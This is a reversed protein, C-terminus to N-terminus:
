DGDVGGKNEEPESSEEPGYKEEWPIAIGEPDDFELDEETLDEDMDDEDEFVELDDEDLDDQQDSAQSSGEDKSSTDSGCTTCSEEDYEELNVNEFSKRLLLARLVEKKKSNIKYFTYNVLHNLFKKALDSLEKEKNMGEDKYSLHVTIEIDPDGDFYVYADEMLQYAASYITEVDYLKPNLELKVFDKEITFFDM